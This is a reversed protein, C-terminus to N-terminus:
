RARGAPRRRWSRRRSSPPRAALVAIREFPRSRRRCRSRRESASRCGPSPPPSRGIPSRVAARGAFVGERQEGHDRRRQQDGPDHRHQERRQEADREQRAWALVSASFATAQSLVRRGLRQQQPAMRQRQSVMASVSPATRETTTRGSSRAARLEEGGGVPRLQQDVQRRGCVGRDGLGLTSISRKSFASAPSGSM